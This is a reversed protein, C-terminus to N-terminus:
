AATRGNRCASWRVPAPRFQFTNVGCISGSGLVNIKKAPVVGQSVLFYKQSDSDALLHTAASAIMHDIRKLLFRPLGMRTSWVQGTYCHVRVAIGALYAALMAVMGGKPTISFVIDFRENRFLQFYKSLAFVDRFPAIDRVIPISVFRVCMPMEVPIASEDRNFSVTVSFDRSLREMHPSIFARYTFPSTMVFCITPKASATKYTNM